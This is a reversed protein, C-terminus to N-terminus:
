NPFICYAELYNKVLPENVFFNFFSILFLHAVSCARVVLGMILLSGNEPASSRKEVQKWSVFKTGVISSKKGFEVNLENELM